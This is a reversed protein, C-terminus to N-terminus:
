KQYRVGELLFGLFLRQGKDDKKWGGEDRCWDEEGWEGCCVYM